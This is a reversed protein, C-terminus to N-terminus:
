VYFLEHVQYNTAGSGTTNILRLAGSTELAISQQGPIIIGRNGSSDGIHLLQGGAASLNSAVFLKRTNGGTDVGSYAVFGGDALSLAGSSKSYTPANKYFNTFIAPTYDIPIESTIFQVTNASGSTDQLIVARFRQVIANGGPMTIPPIPIGLSSFGVNMPAGDISFNFNGTNSYFRIFTGSCDITITGNAPITPSFRTLGANM